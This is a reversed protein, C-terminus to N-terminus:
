TLLGGAQWICCRPAPTRSRGGTGKEGDSNTPLLGGVALHLVQSCTDQKEWRQGKRVKDGDRGQVHASAGATAEESRGQRGGVAEEVPKSPKQQEKFVWM